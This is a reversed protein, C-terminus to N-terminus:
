IKKSGKSPKNALTENKNEIVLFIPILCASRNEVYKDQRNIRKTQRSQSHLPGRLM